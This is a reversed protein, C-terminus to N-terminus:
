LALWIMDKFVFIIFKVFLGLVTILLLISGTTLIVNQVKDLTQINKNYKKQDEMSADSKKNELNTKLSEFVLCLIASIIFIIAAVGVLAFTYIM